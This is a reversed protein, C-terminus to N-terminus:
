KCESTNASASVFSQSTANFRYRLVAIYFLTHPDNFALSDGTTNTYMYNSIYNYPQMHDQSYNYYDFHSDNSDTCDTVNAVLITTVPM